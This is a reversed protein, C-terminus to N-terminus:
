TSRRNERTEKMEAKIEQLISIIQQIGTDHVDVRATVASIKGQFEFRQNAAEREHTAQWEWQRQLQANISLHSNEDDKIHQDIKTNMAKEVADSTGRSHMFNGFISLISVSFSAIAIETPIDM